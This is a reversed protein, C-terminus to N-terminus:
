SNHDTETRQTFKEMYNVARYWFTRQGSSTKFAPIDLNDCNRTSRNHINSRKFFENTHYTPALNNFCKYVM